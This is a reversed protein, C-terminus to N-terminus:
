DCKSWGCSRCINCGGEFLLSDGCQPCSPAASKSIANTDETTSMQCSTSSMVDPHRILEAMESYMDAIANGVAMPCCSGKSTDKKTAGRVAYSPCVGTSSLQDVIDDVAIGGRSALSILRSLGTLSNLCGGTSGKNLYTEVLNGTTPDFYATCHLTGCGTVLDRKLGVVNNGVRIVDGRGVSKKSRLPETSVGGSENTDTGVSLIAARHCGQRFVTIGKLKAKWANIYIREIDEVTASEPLNVTSSISADIYQQWMSQMAIREDPDLESSTVFYSPLGAEDVIGHQEMYAKVIPTYVKYDIDEGHLSKTTRTYCNAFIPEIGGSIGLMTSLTGTPAITLLQSNRLGYKVVAEDLAPNAVERYYRSQMVMSLDFGDYAGREAAITASMEIAAYAMTHGVQKCFDLADYSGYRVGMKILADALGMIGLGIQRWRAVSDRQEQLPHLAIGEELVDNLAKVAVGVDAFFSCFDFTGDCTVYASLNMSGLLCSGGAPLPEEACPNTGAFEFEETESLLNWSKVNDWFLVGPEGTKWNNEALRRLFAKANVTKTIVEGTAERTYSLTVDDGTQAAHMFADSVRVSINAHNVKSLDNKIDIFEEIDPHDCALSIMLAGRRGDQGILEAVASYLNMFSVCGSTTKAANRIRSGRPALKSIDIGCGGGYSFTRALKQATEFISEISDEPPSIVYCNSYTVKQEESNAGRGALIRGGFLFKKEKILQEVRQDGGSVRRIWEDFSENGRQYKKKWIDIGIKNESGLWQEITM